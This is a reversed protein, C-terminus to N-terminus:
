LGFEAKLSPCSASVSRCFWTQEATKHTVFTVPRSVEVASTYQELKDDIKPLLILPQMKKFSNSNWM